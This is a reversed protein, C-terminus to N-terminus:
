CTKKDEIIIGIPCHDSGMVDKYIIAEKVNSIFSKNVIFYDLRWGINKERANRMYSWWTYCDSEKPNFYRFTDIFGSDLLESMKTREEITFGANNKNAKPNKIDIETHAVNFDGCVIVNKIKTLTNLYKRFIDEFKMRLEMRSLDRKVNPVYANVIYYDEFELTIVRGEIDYEEVNLGLKVSLPKVKTYVLTGSYGKKDASYLYYDYGDPKFELEKDSLKAEQICIIDPQEKNFFDIFGKKLCARFGAVNWSVVKM